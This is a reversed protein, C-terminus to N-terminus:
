DALAAFLARIEDDVDAPDDLTGAVEARLLERYRRRLRTAAARAAEASLGLAAAIEAYPAREADGLLAPRLADFHRRRGAAVMEAELQGIVRDLVTLAWRREFLREATMDHSPERSYRGAGEIRDIALPVRGGGRKQAREYDAWNCLYHSCAALLFSRFKGKRRDVSALGRKELLQAFFGQVVDAAAEADLGKRRVFAYIPYWYTRCLVSLAERAEDTDGGAALVVGWQTTRFRRGTEESGLGEDSSNKM